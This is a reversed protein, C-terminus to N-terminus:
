ARRAHSRALAPRRKRGSAPGDDAQPPASPALAALPAFSACIAALTRRLWVSGPDDHCHEDHLMFEDFHGVDLPVPLVELGLAGAHQRALREPVVALCDGRAVLQLALLYQPVSAALARGRGISSLWTDVPDREHEYEVVAVHSAALVSAADDLRPRLPHGARAVLADRDRYLRQQRLNPFRGPACTLAADVERLRELCRTADRDWPILEVSVGPAEGALRALLTSALLVCPYDSLMVRFCRTSTAPDFRPPALVGAVGRLAARVPARLAEGRATRRMGGVSRVLLPDALLERLRRLAHSMAPQSLGVARAAAGVHGEHLLADLAVLLNLDIAALNVGDIVSM